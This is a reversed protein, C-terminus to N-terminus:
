LGARLPESLEVDLASRLLSLLFAVVGFAAVGEGGFFGGCGVFRGISHWPHKKESKGLRMSFGLMQKSSGPEVFGSIIM